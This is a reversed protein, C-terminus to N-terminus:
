KKPEIGCRQTMVARIQMMREVESTDDSEYSNWICKNIIGGFEVGWDTKLEISWITVDSSGRIDEEDRIPSSDPRSADQTTYSRAHILPSLGSDEV